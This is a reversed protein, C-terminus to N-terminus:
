SRPVGTDRLENEVAFKKSARGVPLRSSPRRKRCSAHICLRMSLPSSSCSHRDSRLRLCTGPAGPLEPLVGPTGHVVATSRCTGYQLSPADNSQPCCGISLFAEGPQSWQFIWLSPWYVLCAPAASSLPRRCIGACTLRLPAADAASRAPLSPPPCFCRKGDFVPRHQWGDHREGGAVYKADAGADQSTGGRLVVPTGVRLETRRRSASGLATM